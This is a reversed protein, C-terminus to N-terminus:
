LIHERMYDDILEIAGTATALIAKARDGDYGCIVDYEQDWIFQAIEARMVSQILIPTRVIRPLADAKTKAQKFLQKSDM